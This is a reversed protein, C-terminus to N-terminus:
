TATIAKILLDSLEIVLISQSKKINAIEEMGKQYKVDSGKIAM